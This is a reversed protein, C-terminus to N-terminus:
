ETNDGAQRSAEFVFWIRRETENIFNDLLSTTAVDEYEDSLEYAKRMAAAVQMNDEMLERPMARPAVYAEDTDTITQLRAIQGVSRITVGGIKRVREALRDTTALIADAQEDLLLHCDRFHRGSVHWHFNKTKLYLAFTGCSSRQHRGLDRERRGDVHQQARRSRCRRRHSQEYRAGEPAQAQVTLQGAPSLRFERYPPRM